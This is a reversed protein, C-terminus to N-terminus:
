ATLDIVAFRDDASLLVLQRVHPQFSTVSMMM